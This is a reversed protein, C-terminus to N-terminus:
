RPSEEDYVRRVSVNRGGMEMKTTVILQPATMVREYTETVKANALSIESVLFGQDWKTRVDQGNVKEKRANATVVRVRGDSDTFEIRDGDQKVVFSTPRHLFMERAQETEDKGGGFLGGLGHMGAPPRHGGGQSAHMAELKAEANESLERNLQWRGTLDPPPSERQQTTIVPVTGAALLSAVLVSYAVLSSRTTTGM